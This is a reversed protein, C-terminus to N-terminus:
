SSNLNFNQVSKEVQFSVGAIESLVLVGHKETQCAIYEQAVLNMGDRISSVVAVDCAAYLAALEAFDVSKFLYHIPQSNLSGYQGNIRGVLGDVEKKLNIYEKVDTRSPVAVQILIVQDKMEPHKQFFRELSRLRHPIGKIYDLRDVGLLVKKGAFRKQFDKLHDQTKDTKLQQHFKEPDIGVPSIM